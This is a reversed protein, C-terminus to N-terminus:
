SQYMVDLQTLVGDKVSAYYYGNIDLKSFEDFYEEIPYANTTGSLTEFGIPLGNEDQHTVTYGMKLDSKYSVKVPENFKYGDVVSSGTEPTPVSFTFQHVTSDLTAVTESEGAPRICYADNESFMHVVGLDAEAKALTYEEGTVMMAPILCIEDNEADISKIYCFFSGDEATSTCEARFSGKAWKSILAEFGDAALYWGRQAHSEYIVEDMLEYNKLIESPETGWVDQTHFRKGDYTMLKFEQMSGPLDHYSILTKIGTDRNRYLGCFENQGEYIEEPKVSFPTNVSMLRFSNEEASLQLKGDTYEYGRVGDDHSMSFLEPVDDENMDILVMGHDFETGEPKRKEAETVYDHYVTKYDFYPTIKSTSIVEDTFLNNYCRLAMLIAQERTACGEDPQEESPKPCFVGRGNGNIVKHKAMFYVSPRAYYSIANEDEFDPAGKYNLDFKADNDLSWDEWSYKKFVRCLMTALQERNILSDPEFATESTGSTIGLSYAKKIETEYENVDTFPIDGYSTSEGKISEYLQVAIAAFEKRDISLKLDKGVISKPILNKEAAEEVEARAWDSCLLENQVAFEMRSADYEDLVKNMSVTWTEEFPLFYSIGYVDNRYNTVLMRMWDLYEESDKDMNKNEICLENESNFYFLSSICASNFLSDDFTYLAYKGSNADRLLEYKGFILEEVAEGDKIYVFCTVSDKDFKTIEWPRANVTMGEDYETVYEMGTVLIEPIGDKNLDLIVLGNSLTTEGLGGDSLRWSSDKYREWKMHETKFGGPAIEDLKAAYDMYIKRYHTNAKSYAALCFLNIVVFFLLFGSVLRKCM